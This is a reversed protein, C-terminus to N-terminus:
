HVWFNALCWFTLNLSTSHSCPFVFTLASSPQSQLLVRVPLASHGGVRQPREILDKRRMTSRNHSIKWGYADTTSKHRGSGFAHWQCKRGTISDVQVEM